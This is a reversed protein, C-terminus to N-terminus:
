PRAEAPGRPPPSGTPTAGPSPSPSAPLTPLLPSPSPTPSPTPSATPSATPSPTPSATPSATPSPSPTALQGVNARPPFPTVPQGELAADMFAKFIAAPITGGYVGGKIGLVNDLSGGGQRGVWVAAALQPTFGAFWANLNSDTTGTKGAAPRNALQARSGTGASVVQQMAYTVDAAVGDSFAQGTSEKAAYIENGRNDSVKAVFYPTARTGGAAFTAYGTAQDIVHIEYGGAGLAIQASPAPKDGNLPQSAPIGAAHALDAIKQPGIQCALRYYVTNVSYELGTVLDIQGFTPDGADNKIKDGCIQQPTAGNFRTNLSTGQELAAALVYPKMSSGPQVGPGDSAYDFQGAKRGGYYAIVKGTGPQVAVLAGVPPHSQGATPAPIKGEVAAVAAEQAKRVLTTTVTLGGASVRGEDFGHQELEAVVRARLYDKSGPFGRDGRGATPAVVPPYVARDREAQSLAGTEVMGRLVDSWRGKARAPHRSPDYGSPSRISSALVAGQEATLTKAPHNFYTESAAEIGYAGRGFYITNLYDELIKDKSVTRSLKLSIFVEKVKRTYTRDQTLFANKVYQQTITSGGQQVSGGGKLNTFLARGIGRFSIGPESYFRRDEAALIAKQVAVSVDSLPVLIRNQGIRGIEGGDAYLVRTAQATAQKNPEPPVNTLAYGVGVLAIFLAVLSGLALGIRKKWSLHRLRNM